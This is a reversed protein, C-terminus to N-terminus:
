ALRAVAVALDGGRVARATSVEVERDEAAFVRPFVWRDVADDFVVQSQKGQRHISQEMMTVPRDHCVGRGTFVTQSPGLVLDGRCRADENHLVGEPGHNALRGRLFTARRGNRSTTAGM